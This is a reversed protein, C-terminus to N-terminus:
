SGIWIPHSSIFRSIIWFIWRRLSVGIVLFFMGM